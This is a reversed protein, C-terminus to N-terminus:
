RRDQRLGRGVGEMRQCLYDFLAPRKRAFVPFTSLIRAFDDPDLGYAEAAACHPKAFGPWRDGFARHCSHPWGSVSSSAPDRM